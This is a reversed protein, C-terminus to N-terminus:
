VLTIITLGSENLELNMSKNNFNALTEMHSSLIICGVNMSSILDLCLDHNEPDLRRLFEDMVLIGLRTIIKSMFNIDLITKQGSSAGSYSVWQGGGKYYFSALDLHDKKRFNYTVVEYKVSNDSFETSLKKMIEEYIKGTTSTTKIYLDFLQLGNTVKSIEKELFILEKEAQIKDNTFELITKWSNIIKELESMKELFDPPLTVEPVEKIEKFLKEKEAYQESYYKSKQELFDRQYLKKHLEELIKKNELIELKIRESSLEEANIESLETEILGKDELLKEILKTLTEIRILTDEKKIAQGCESCKCSMLSSWTAYAKSGESDIRKLEIQLWQKRSERKSLDDEKSSISKQLISIKKSISNKDEPFESFKKEIEKSEKRLLELQTQLALINEKYRIWDENREKLLKGELVLKEADELSIKPPIHENLKNLIFELLKKTNEYKEQFSHITKRLTDQLNQAISNFYDIKDLKFFKSIIESKREPTIDGILKSHDDDFFFIDMYDIFPFRKHLDEEFDKKSGYKIPENDITLGWSKSGRNIKCVKGQYLFDVEAICEKQDFQIFEKIFRNEIFAYKIASMLSTKGSGNQGRILIKDGENFYLEIEEISRWNKCYFRVLRFDFDVEFAEIDKCNKLVESHVSQLSNAVIIGDILNGVEEWVPVKIERPGSSNIVNAPKYVFWTNIDPVYGEKSLDSTYVFRLLNNNPNLDVWNWKKSETDYIIGTSKDSDGMKCRQPVGISVYKGRSLPQHIDGCIALDFKSEDLVQSKYLDSPSYSITAHTFLVDVKGNIWNLDFNPKWNSFAVESSGIKCQKQDAYYLNSPLMVSLCADTFLQEQNRNDEDHNGWIIFGYRFNAMITDLFLKVEAQIYPRVISKELIDGALVIVEAGNKKGVEIINQSVKRTQYLRFKESPNRQPYDHIHIDSVVLIKM